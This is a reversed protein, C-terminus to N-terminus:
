KIERIYKDELLTLKDLLSELEIFMEKLDELEYDEIEELVDEPIEDQVREMFNNVDAVDWLDFRYVELDDLAEEINNMIREIKRGTSFLEPFEKKNDFVYKLRESEKDSIKIMDTNSASKCYNLGYMTIVGHTMSWFDSDDPEKAPIDVKFYRGKMLRSWYSDFDLTDSMRVYINKKLESRKIM